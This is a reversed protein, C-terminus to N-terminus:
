PHIQRPDPGARNAAEYRDADLQCMSALSSRSDRDLVALNKRKQTDGCGGADDRNRQDSGARFVLELGPGHDLTIAEVAM